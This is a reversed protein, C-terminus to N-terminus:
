KKAEASQEDEGVLVPEVWIIKRLSSKPGYPQNRMFGRRWHLRPSAHTGDGLSRTREARYEWGITNPSWLAERIRGHKESQKRTQEGVKVIGPRATIALMLKFIYANMKKRFINEAEGSPYDAGTGQPTGFEQEEFYTADSMEYAQADTVTDQMRYCMTYETPMDTSGLVPLVSMVKEGDSQLKNFLMLPHEMIPLKLCDPYIGPIARCIGMFPCFYGFYKLVFQTPLVFLMADLPWKIDSFKLDQPPETQAVAQAFESRIFYTPVRMELMKLACIYSTLHPVMDLESNYAVQIASRMTIAYFRPNAFGGPPTINRPYCSSFMM